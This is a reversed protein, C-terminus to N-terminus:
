TMHTLTLTMTLMTLANETLKNSPITSKLLLMTLRKINLSMVIITIQKTSIYSSEQSWREGHKRNITIMASQMLTVVHASTTPRLLPTTTLMSVSVRMYIM